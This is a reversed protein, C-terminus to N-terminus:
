DFCRDRRHGHRRFPVPLSHEPEGGGPQAAGRNRRCPHRHRDLVPVGVLEAPNVGNLDLVELFPGAADKGPVAAGTSVTARVTRTAPDATAPALSASRTHFQDSAARGPKPGHPPQHGAAVYRANDKVWAEHDHRAAWSDTGADPEKWAKAAAKALQDHQPHRDPVAGSSGSGGSTWQGHDDRPESANFM